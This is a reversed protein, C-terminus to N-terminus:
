LRSERHSSVANTPLCLRIIHILRAASPPPSVCIRILQQATVCDAAVGAASSCTCCASTQVEREEAALFSRATPALLRLQDGAFEVLQAPSYTPPQYGQEVRLHRQLCPLFAFKHIFM